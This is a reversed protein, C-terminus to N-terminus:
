KILPATEMIDNIGLLKQLAIASDRHKRLMALSNNAFTMVQPDAGKKGEKEFENIDKKHNSVMIRIYTKDFEAGKKKQLNDIVKQQRNSVTAPLTVRKAAALDKLTISGEGHDKIMMTGFAKVGQNTSHSQALQGLQVDMMGRSAANVLFDADAKSPVAALSDGPSEAGKRSEIKAANSDKANKVSDSSPSNNCSIFLFIFALGLYFDLLKKM